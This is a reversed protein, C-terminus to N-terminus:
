APPLDRLDLTWAGPTGPIPPTQPARRGVRDPRPKWRELRRQEAAAADTPRDPYNGGEPRWSHWEAAATVRGTKADVWELLLPSEAAIHPHLSPVRYHARFRLGALAAAARRHSFPVPRGNVRLHGRRLLRSPLRLELRENSSDIARVTSSGAPQEGLLPWAELAHRVEVAGGPIDLTGLVPFRWEWFPRFWDRRLPIGHRALDATVTGLDDWLAGPLFFRDHLQTGWDKLPRTDPHAALRALISRFLLAILALTDADPTTEVARFELLGLCGTPSAPNWLKDISIEARHTNGSRDALLDRFLLAFLFPDKKVRNWGQLALGLERLGELGTEDVRPAQCSPGVFIGTFAYSLVPHNQFYRLTSPLLDRRTLFPSRPAKWGGFCLHAGGGTGQVVGNYNFKVTRLGAAAAATDLQRLHNRFASWRGTPPLNVEIVGPDSAFTFRLLGSAGSPFYGSLILGHLDLRRAIDRLMGILQFYPGAELPPLFVELGGDKVEVTLARKLATDPLSALPLRLGISSHGWLLRVHDRKGLPWADSRWRGGAADLPLVWGRPHRASSSAERAPLLFKGLGLARAIATAARQATDRGHRVPDRGLLLRDTEPWLPGRPDHTVSVTWRPLAEGPYQKGYFQTVLAGPYSQRLLAGAFARAYGLKTPGLADTSWEGGEPQLPLYTPEGGMTLVVKARRLVSEAAAACATIGPPLPSPPM